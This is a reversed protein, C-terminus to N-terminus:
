WGRGRSWPYDSWYNRAEREEFGERDRDYRDRPDRDRDYRNRDYDDRSSSYRNRPEAFYRDRDDDRGFTRDSWDRVDESSSRWTDRMRDGMDREGSSRDPYSNRNRYDNRDLEYRPSRHRADSSTSRGDDRMRDSRDRNRDRDYDDDVHGYGIPNGFHRAYERDAEESYRHRESRDFDRNGAYRDRGFPRESATNRRPEDRWRDRDRDFDDRWGENRNRYRDM